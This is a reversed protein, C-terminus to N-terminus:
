QVDSKSWVGEQLDWLELNDDPSTNWVLFLDINVREAGLPKNNNSGASRWAEQSHGFSKLNYLQIQNQKKPLFVSNKGLVM